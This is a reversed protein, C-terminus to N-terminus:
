LIFNKGIVFTNRPFPIGGLFRASIISIQMSCLTGYMPTVRLGFINSICSQSISHSFQGLKLFPKVRPLLFDELFLYVPSRRVAGWAEVNRAGPDTKEATRVTAGLTRCLEKVAHRHGSSLFGRLYKGPDGGSQFQQLLPTPAIGAERVPRLNVYFVDGNLAMKRRVFAVMNRVGAEVM